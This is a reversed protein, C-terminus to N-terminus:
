NKKKEKKKERFKQTTSWPSSLSSSYKQTLIALKWAKCSRIWWNGVTREKPENPQKIPM